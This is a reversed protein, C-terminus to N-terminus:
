SGAEELLAKMRSFCATWGKTHEDRQDESPFQSHTLVVETSDGRRLFEVTVVTDAMPTGEWRWSFTLRADKEMDRYEGIAIHTSGDPHRMEIRYTGGERPDLEHVVTEFEASPAFWLAVQSPDTWARYVRSPPAHVLRKVQLSHVASEVTAM